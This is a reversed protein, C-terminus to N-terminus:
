KGGTTRALGLNTPKQFLFTNSREGYRMGTAGDEYIFIPVAGVELFHQFIRAQPYVHMEMSTQGVTTDIYDHIDFVYDIRYTPVQFYAIGGPKLMRAFNKLIRDILPPPNHQLVIISYIIDVQPLQKLGDVSALHRWEISTIGAQEAFKAAQTLHAASIDVGITRHFHRALEQTIRGLGCGFELCTASDHLRVGERKLTWLFREVDRTGSEFFKRTVDDSPQGLYESCTIVSFFSDREGMDHWSRNIHTFLRQLQEQTGECDIKIPPEDGHLTIRDHPPVSNIFEESRLFSGRLAQLDACALIKQKIVDANEPERGLFLRYGWTVTEENVPTTPTAIDSM